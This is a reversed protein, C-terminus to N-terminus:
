RGGIQVAGRRHLRDGKRILVKRLELLTADARIVQPSLGTSRELEDLSRPSELAEVLTRQSVSLDSPLIVTSTQSEDESAEIPTAVFRHHHVGEFLHRAPSELQALVDDPSTVIAGGGQRLLDLSGESAKSDVRGPLIMVERAHDEAALRATILAGSRAGAEIVLVGLSMGSIIRNRAPFNDPAPATRLPLESVIAGGEAVIQDFLERNEPPYCHALGCGMVVITRAKAALVGQHAATDIGRAGGSVITLGARSLAGAFRMAQEVGYPTCHRSGVIAVPYRDLETSLDGRVYLIPPADDFHSLLAPYRENWWAILQYEAKQARDLEETARSESHELARCIREASRPGIRPTQALQAPSAGLVADISGLTRIARRSLVPGLGPTLTIRLLAHIDSESHNNNEM